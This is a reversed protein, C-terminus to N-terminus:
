VILKESAGSMGYWYARELIRRAWRQHTAPECM